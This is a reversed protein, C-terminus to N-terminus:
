CLTEIMYNTTTWPQLFSTCSNQSYLFKEKNTSPVFLVYLVFTVTSFFFYFSPFFYSFMHHLSVLPYHPLFPQYIQIPYQFKKIPKIAALYSRCTSRKYANHVPVKNLLLVITSNYIQHPQTLSSTILIRSNPPM